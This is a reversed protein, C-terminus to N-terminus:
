TREDIRPNSQNRNRFIRRSGRGNHQAEGMCAGREYKDRRKQVSMSKEAMDASRRDPDIGVYIKVRTTDNELSREEKKESDEDIRVEVFRYNDVIKSSKGISHPGKMLCTGVPLSILKKYIEERTKNDFAIQRSVSKAEEETLRFYFRFGGQKFQNIVAESFNSDLFQTALVLNLHYKQGETLCKGIISTRKCSLNQFEDIFLFVNKTEKCAKFYRKQQCLLTYGILDAIIQVYEDDIGSLDWIVSSDTFDTQTDVSFQIKPLSEGLIDLRDYIKAAWENGSDEEMDKELANIMDVVTFDAKEKDHVLKQFVKKLITKANVSQFGVANVIIKACGILENTSGFILRIGQSEVQQIIAEASCLREKALYTWKEGLDIICALDGRKILAKAIEALLVSKGCRSGGVLLM